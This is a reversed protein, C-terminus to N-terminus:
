SAEQQRTPLLGGIVALAEAYGSARGRFGSELPVGGAGGPPLGGAGGPPVGGAGGPPVGGLDWGIVLLGAGPMVKGALADDVRASRLADRPIWLGALDAGAATIVLDGGARRGLGRAVIRDQWGGAGVTGVYVGDMPEMLPPGPDAPAVPLPPLGPEQRRARRRWGWAMAALCLAAGLLVLATLLLHQGLRSPPREVAALLVASM